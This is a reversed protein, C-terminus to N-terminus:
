TRTWKSLANAYWRGVDEVPTQGGLLEVALTQYLTWTRLDKVILAAACGVYDSQPELRDVSEWDREYLHLSGARHVYPGVGLSLADAMAQQLRTFQFADYPWGLWVDNSRMATHLELADDRVLFQFSLTCPLDRTIAWADGERWVTAIAQRTDRDVVLQTYVRRLQGAVRPGYAGYFHGADMYDRFQPAVGCLLEPTSVGGILQLAECAGIAVNLGRNLGVPMADYLPNHVVLTAGTLERCVLGRPEVRRGHDRITRCLDVYGSRVTDMEVRPAVLSDGIM